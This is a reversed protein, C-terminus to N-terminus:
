SQPQKVSDEASEIKQGIRPETGQMLRKINPRHRLVVYVAGIACFAVYAPKTPAFIYMTIASSTVGVMSALSVFRTFYVLAIFIAFASFAALANMAIACGFATAASKGGRFQLFISKSHGVLALLAIVFPLWPALWAIPSQTLEGLMNHDLAWISLWVPLYGKAVDIFFVFAAAGKGATRLVNTTGTSGSGVKLLDVGKRAKVVWYGTPISGCLYGFILLALTIM